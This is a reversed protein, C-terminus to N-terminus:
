RLGSLHARAYGTYMRWAEPHRAARALADAVAVGACARTPWPGRARRMWAYAAAQARAYRDEGFVPETSASVRHDVVAGPVYRTAWGARRARWCLDLDEAYLWLREDFGGVADWAERRVLLLAGHAWDVRRERGLDTRGEIALRDALAGRAGLAFALAVRADPFPHFSQQVRGDPRVLRPALIGAGPDRDGAALLADLAGPRLVIDANAAAIWASRTRRGVVNVARGYGLNEEGAVLQVEPFREAVMAASGDRSANDVVWVEAEAPRLSELCAALDDRTEYSVVAITVRADRVPREASV